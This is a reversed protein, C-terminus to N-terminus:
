LYPSPPPDRTTIPITKWIYESSTNVDSELIFLPLYQALFFCSDPLNKLYSFVTMAPTEDSFKQILPQIETMVSSSNIKRRISGWTNTRARRKCEEWPINKVFKRGETPKQEAYLPLFKEYWSIGKTLLEM